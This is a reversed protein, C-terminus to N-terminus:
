ILNFARLILIWFGVSIVAGFMFPLRLLKFIPKGIGQSASRQQPTPQSAFSEGSNERHKEM